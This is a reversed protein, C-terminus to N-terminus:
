SLAEMPANSCIVAQMSITEEM